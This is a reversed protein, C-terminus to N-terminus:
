LASYPDLQFMPHSPNFVESTGASFVVSSVFLAAALFLVATVMIFGGIQFDTIGEGEAAREKARTLIVELMLIAMAGTGVCLVPGVVSINLLPPTM